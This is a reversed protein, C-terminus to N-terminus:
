QHNNEITHMITNIKIEDRDGISFLLILQSLDSSQVLRIGLKNPKFRYCTTEKEPTGDAYREEKGDITEENVDISTVNEIKIYNKKNKIEDCEEQKLKKKREKEFTMLLAMAEEIKEKASILEEETRKPKLKKMNKEWKIVDLVKNYIKNKEQELKEATEKNLENERSHEIFKVDNSLSQSKM